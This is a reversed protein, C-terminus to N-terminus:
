HGKSSLKCAGVGGSLGVAPSISPTREKRKVGNGSIIAFGFGDGSSPRRDEVFSCILKGDMSRGGSVNGVDVGTGDFKERMRAPLTASRMPGSGGAEAGSSFDPVGSLADEAGSPKPRMPYENNGELFVEVVERVPGGRGVGGVDMGRVIDSGDKVRGTERAAECADEDFLEDRAREKM